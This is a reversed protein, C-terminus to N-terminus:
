EEPKGLLRAAEERIPRVDPVAEHPLNKKVWADGKKLWRRAEEEDGKHWQAMALLYSDCHDGGAALRASENM